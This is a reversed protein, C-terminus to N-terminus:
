ALEAASIDLGVYRSGSTATPHSQLTVGPGSTSSRRAQNFSHRSADSSRRAGRNRTALLSPVAYCRHVRQTAHPGFGLLAVCVTQEAARAANIMAPHKLGPRIHARRELAVSHATSTPRRGRRKVLEGPRNAAVAMTTPKATTLRRRPQDPDACPQHEDWSADRQEDGEGTM